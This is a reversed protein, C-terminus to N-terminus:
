GGCLCLTRASSHIESCQALLVLSGQPHLIRSLARFGEGQDRLAKLTRVPTLCKTRKWRDMCGLLFPLCRLTFLNKMAGIVYDSTSVQTAIHLLHPWYTPIIHTSMGPMPLHPLLPKYLASAMECLPRHKVLASHSPLSQQCVPCQWGDQISADSEVPNRRFTSVCKCPSNAPTSLSQLVTHLSQQLHSLPVAEFQLPHPLAAQSRQFQQVDPSSRLALSITASLLCRVRVALADPCRLVSRLLIGKANGYRRLPCSTSQERRLLSSLLREGQM